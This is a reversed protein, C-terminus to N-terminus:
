WERTKEQIQQGGLAAKGKVHKGKQIQLVLTQNFQCSYICYNGTIM